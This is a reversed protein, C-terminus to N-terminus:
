QNPWFSHKWTLAALLKQGAVSPHFYDVTSVFSPGFRYRFGAGGDWRCHAFTKCVSGLVDNFAEERMRVTQRQANTDERNFMSQCLGYGGWISEASRNNHLVQWLRFLNLLSSVYVHGSHDRTFFDTLSRRFEARFVSVRTMEPITQSCLDNHGMLITAYSVHKRALAVLQNDLSQMLTGTQAVNFVHGKITKNKAWIRQYQSVIAPNWGTSWSDQPNDHLVGASNVDFARTVSDGAAGISNPLPLRAPISPKSGPPPTHRHSGNSEAGVATCGMLVALLALIVSSIPLKLM